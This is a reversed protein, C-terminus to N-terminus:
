FDEHHDRAAKLIVRKKVDSPMLCYSCKVVGKVNSYEDATGFVGGGYLFYAVCVHFVIRVYARNRVCTLYM